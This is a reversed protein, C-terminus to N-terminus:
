FFVIILWMLLWIIILGLVWYGGYCMYSLFKFMIWIFYWRVCCCWFIINYCGRIYWDRSSWWVVIVVVMCWWWFVIVVMIIVLVIRWVWWRSVVRWMIWDLLSLWEWRFMNVVCRWFLVINGRIIWRWCFWIVVVIFVM